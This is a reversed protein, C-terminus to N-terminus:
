ILRHQEIERKLGEYESDFGSEQVIAQRRMNDWLATKSSYKAIQVMIMIYETRSLILPRGEILHKEKMMETLFSSREVAEKFDQFHGDLKLLLFM